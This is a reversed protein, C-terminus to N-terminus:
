NLDQKNLYDRFQAPNMGTQKRFAEIFASNSKFGVELAIVNMNYKSRKDCKNSLIKIAEDTRYKNILDNFRKGKESIANSLYDRNTGLEKAIHEVTLDTRTFQNNTEIWQILTEYLQQSKDQGNTTRNKKREKNLQQQSQQLAREDALLQINKQVLAKLVKNKSKQQLFFVIGSLTLICFIIIITLYISHQKREKEKARELNFARSTLESKTEYYAKSTNTVATYASDMFQQASDSYRYALAPQGGQAYNKALEKYTENRLINYGVVPLQTRALQAHQLAIDNINNQRYIRSLKLHANTRRIAATQYNSPLQLTLQLQIIAKDYNGLKMEIEAINNYVLSLMTNDSVETCQTLCKTAYKKANQLENLKLYYDVINIYVYFLEAKDNHKIFINEAKYFSLIAENYNGNNMYYRGLIKENVGTSKLLGAETFHRTSAILWEVGKQEDSLTFSIRALIRENLAQASLYSFNTNTTLMLTRYADPLQENRFLVLGKISNYWFSNQDNLNIISLANLVKLASDTKGLECLAAARFLKTLFATQDNSVEDSTLEELEVLVEQNKNETYFLQIAKELHPPYNIKDTQKCGSFFLYTLFLFIAYILFTIRKYQVM